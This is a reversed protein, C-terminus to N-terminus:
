KTTAYSNVKNLLHEANLKHNELEKIHDSITETVISRDDVSVFPTDNAGEQEALYITSSAILETIRKIISNCDNIFAKKTRQDAPKQTGKKIKITPKYKSIEKYDNSDYKDSCRGSEWGYSDIANNISITCIKGGNFTYVVRKDTSGSETRAYFSDKSDISSATLYLKVSLKNDGYYYGRHNKNVEITVSFCEDNGIMETEYINESYFFTDQIGKELDKFEVIWNQLDYVDVTGQVKVAEDVIKSIEDIQTVETWLSNKIILADVPIVESRDCLYAATKLITCIRQWRRDSIYLINDPNDSNFTEIDLRIKHIVNLVEESLSISDIHSPLNEWEEHTFSLENDIEIKSTVVNGAILSEFCDRSKLPEVRIRLTFRDYLAELGQNSPPTENSAAILGKLPVSSESDGNRFVRENIITLLTNLIAPSSKWIEDLFAFDATPLYGKTKRVFRDQKLEHISVPGFVEEPTSFKQMLYEFHTSNSFAMSLRRAILSKATGPPGYLFVSQGALIALLANSIVLDREHLDRGIECLLKNVREKMSM